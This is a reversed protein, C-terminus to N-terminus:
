NKLYKTISELNIHLIRVYEDISHFLSKKTEYFVRCRFERLIFDRNPIFQMSRRSKHPSDRMYARIFVSPSGNGPSQHLTPPPTVSCFFLLPKPWAASPIPSRYGVMLTFVWQQSDSLSQKGSRQHNTPTGNPTPNAFQV